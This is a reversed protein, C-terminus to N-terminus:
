SNALAMASRSSAIVSRKGKLDDPLASLEQWQGLSPSVRTVPSGRLPPKVGVTRRDRGNSSANGPTGLILNRNRLAGPVHIRAFANHLFSCTGLSLLAQQVRTL